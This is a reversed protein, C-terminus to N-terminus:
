EQPGAQLAGTGVCPRARDCRVDGGARKRRSKSWPLGVHLPTGPLDRPQGQRLGPPCTATHPEPLVTGLTGLEACAPAASAAPHLWLHTLSAASGRMPTSLWAVPDMRAQHTGWCSASRGGRKPDQGVHGVGQCLQSSARSHHGGVKARSGWPTDGGSRRSKPPSSCCFAAQEAEDGEECGKWIKPHQSLNEGPM